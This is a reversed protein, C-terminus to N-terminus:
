LARHCVTTFSKCAHGEVQLSATGSVQGYTLQQHINKIDDTTALSGDKKKIELGINGLQLRHPNVRFYEVQKRQERRNKRNYQILYEEEKWSM